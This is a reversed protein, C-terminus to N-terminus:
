SMQAAVHLGQGKFVFVFVNVVPQYLNQMSVHHCGHQIVPIIFLNVHIIELMTVSVHDHLLEIEVAM